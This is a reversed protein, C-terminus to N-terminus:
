RQEVRVQNANKRKYQIVYYQLDEPGKYSWELHVATATVESISVDTPAAPLAVSRSASSSSSCSLRKVIIVLVVSCGGEAFIIQLNEAMERGSGNWPPHLNNEQVKGQVRVFTTAEITGLTSAALCTYNESQQINVLELINRGVPPEPGVTM